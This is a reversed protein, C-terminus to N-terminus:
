IEFWNNQQHAVFHLKISLYKFLQDLQGFTMQRLTMEGFVLTTDGM